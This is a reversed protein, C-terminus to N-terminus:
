YNLLIADKRFAQVAHINGPVQEPAPWRRRQMLLANAERLKATM